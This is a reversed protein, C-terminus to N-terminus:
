LWVRFRKENRVKPIMLQGQNIGAIIYSILFRSALRNSGLKYLLYLYISIYDTLDLLTNV